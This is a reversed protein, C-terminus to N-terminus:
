QTRDVPIQSEELLLPQDDADAGDVTHFPKIGVGFGMDMEDAARAVLHIIQRSHDNGLAEGGVHVAVGASACFGAGQAKGAGAPFAEGLNLSGPCRGIWYLIM